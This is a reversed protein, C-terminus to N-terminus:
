SRLKMRVIGMTFAVEGQKPARQALGERLKFLRFPFPNTEVVGFFLRKRFNSARETLM